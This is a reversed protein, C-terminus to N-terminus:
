DPVGIIAATVRKDVPEIVPVRRLADRVVSLQLPQMRLLPDLDRLRTYRRRRREPPLSGFLPRVLDWWAEGLLYPDPREDDLSVPGAVGSLRRWQEASNMDGRNFAQNAWANTIEAMQHLARQMRRPLLQTESRAAAALFKGLWQECSEDFAVNPPNELLYGRLKESVAEVGTTAQPPDAELMLWRPAGHQTGSLALFAWPTTARVPAVRAVVRQQTHRYSTYVAPSVLADEGDILRRVPDLADNIGDWTLQTQEEIDRIHREVPVVTNDQRGAFKPLPLNSGLLSESAHRRSLLLEIERTAFAQGDDPWWISIREHPSDMRDVRGVRQEAVRLTTPLDLHVLAAAGQLNRGENLADSCLAIAHEKSERAFVTEVQHQSGSSEGTAILVDATSDPLQAHVAALTIPHRDFALVLRHEKGLRVLLQAKARERATSIKTSSELIQHYTAAEDACADRWADADTMWTPLLCSLDVQPPGEEALASVTAIVDGTQQSKAKESLGCERLAAATGILHETLAARSSRMAALVQHRALGKAANLRSELFQEDTIERRLAQPVRVRRGLQVIGLLQVTASRIHNAAQEDAPTEGTQYVEAAHVPYRCIRGSEVDRYAAEDQDVLRNLATKTRRVTFRQIERRLRDRQGSTLAEELRAGRDLQELVELTQDDFNDAGLLGVLSLLDQAGRSIPTATFLLVHDAVSERVHRTRNATPSLFNHAEDVALIQARSVHGAEVHRVVTDPRSLLGHSVPMVTVGAKLAERQWIKVVPPPCVLTTLDRDRRLRGTDLLRGRVAAVLHAGMRTKGSGTADAVLVSGLNEMVWLAQAIGSRQSPWLEAGNGSQTPANRAWDGELLEACARALAEQWGVVQLLGRLLQGFEDNWPQGQSWLNEGLRVLEGYRQIEDVKTFRANAELQRGLGHDTYNSSGVTAANDGIYVKAHLHTPGPIVQVQLSGADLEELARIVKASLLVSVSHELWYSRVEETFEEQASGFHTRRSPFPEWGLLLRVGGPRDGRARRWEAILDILVAISSYGAILLPEDSTVLDPAVIDRVHARAHNVPFRGHEPWTLTALNWNTGSAPDISFLDDGLVMPHNPKRRM